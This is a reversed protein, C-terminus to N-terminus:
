DKIALADALPLPDKTKMDAIWRRAKADPAISDVIAGTLDVREISPDSWAVEWQSIALSVGAAKAAAEIRPRLAPALNLISGNSFVQQHMLQQRAPGLAELEKLRAADKRAKAERLAAHLAGLDNRGEDSNYWALAVARSDYTGIRLPQALASPLLAAALFLTALAPSLRMM